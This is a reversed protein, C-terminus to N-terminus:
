AAEEVHRPMVTGGIILAIGIVGLGVAFVKFITQKSDCKDTFDTERQYGGFAHTMENQSDTRLADGHAQDDFAGGCSVTDGRDNAHLPTFAVAFAALALVIGLVTVLRKM